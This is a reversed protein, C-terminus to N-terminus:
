IRICLFQQFGKLWYERVHGIDSLIPCQSAIYGLVYDQFRISGESSLYMKQFTVVNILWFPLFEPIVCLCYLICISFNIVLM